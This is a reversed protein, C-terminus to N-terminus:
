LAYGGDINWTTGTVFRTEARALFAVADAIDHPQGYHGVATLSRVTDAFEGSEPNMDTAVPGPQITNVTIGRPGLERALNRTLGAVAAKTLAYVSIGSIPARDALVSGISIIRGGTGLHPLAAQIAVFVARVNIALIRDYEAMPFGEIPAQHSTGANNVLVELGGFRGVAKSIAARLAEPDASDAQVALAQGGSSIIEQELDNAADTAERYTFAVAAGDAALRRVIGAGIGRSGGTVFARRDALPARAIDDLQATQTM